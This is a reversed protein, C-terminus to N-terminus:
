EILRLQEGKKGPSSKAARGGKKVKGKVARGGAKSKGKAATRGRGASAVDEGKAHAGKSKTDKVREVKAATDKTAEVTAATKSKTGKGKARKGAEDSPAGKKKKPGKKDSEEEDITSPLDTAPAAGGAPGGESPPLEPPPENMNVFHPLAKLFLNAIDDRPRGTIKGISAGLEPIYREFLSRRKAESDLRARARLSQALRRGCDQLALTIERLMEPYHAVAEKAESTFPVWVSALHVFIAM